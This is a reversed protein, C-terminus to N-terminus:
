LHSKDNWSILTWGREPTHELLSIGSNGMSTHNRFKLFIEPTLKDGLIAVLVMMKIFSAHSVILVNQSRHKNLLHSLNNIARAKIEEFTEEDSHRKGVLYNQDVLEDIKAANEDHRPKGWNISPTKVEVLEGWKEIKIRLIKSIEEATQLTRTHTSTYIFDIEIDKLRKALAKAQLIGDETLKTEPTSHTGFKNAESEGHRVLYLKM